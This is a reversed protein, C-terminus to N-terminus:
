GLLLVTVLILAFLVWCAAIGHAFGWQYQETQRWIKITFKM